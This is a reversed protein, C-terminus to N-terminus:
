ESGGTIINFATSIGIVFSRKFFSKSSNRANSLDNFEFQLAVKTISPSGNQLLCFSLGTNWQPNYEKTIDISPYFVVGIQNGLFGPVYTINGRLRISVFELYKGIGYKEGDDDVTRITRTFGGNNYVSDDNVIVKDLKRYNNQRSLVTSFGIFFNNTGPHFEYIYSAGFSGGVFVSDRLQSSITKITTDYLQLSSGSISGSLIFMTASYRTNTGVLRWMSHRHFYYAGGSFGPAIQNSNFISGLGNETKAKFFGGVGNFWRDRSTTPPPGFGQERKLWNKFLNVKISNDGINVRSSFLWKDSQANFFVPVGESNIDEFYDQAASFIFTFISVLISFIKKM